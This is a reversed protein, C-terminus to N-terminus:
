VRELVDDLPVRLKLLREIRDPAHRIGGLLLDSNLKNRQTRVQPWAWIQQPFELCGRRRGSNGEHVHAPQAPAAHTLRYRANNGDYALHIFDTPKRPGHHWHPPSPSM